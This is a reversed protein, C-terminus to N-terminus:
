DWSNYIPIKRKVYVQWWNQYIYRAQNSFVYGGTGSWYPTFTGEEYDDLKNASGTGGLYVGSSLYLSEFRAGSSGLNMTGDKDAGANTSPLIAGDAQKNLAAVNNSTTDNLVMDAVGTAVGISGM